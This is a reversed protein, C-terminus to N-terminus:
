EYVSGAQASVSVSVKRGDEPSVKASGLLALLENGQLKGKWHKAAGNWM